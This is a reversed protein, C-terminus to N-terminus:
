TRLGAGYHKLAETLELYAQRARRDNVIADPVRHALRQAAGVVRSAEERQGLLAREIVEIKGSLSEDANLADLLATARETVHEPTDSMEDTWM